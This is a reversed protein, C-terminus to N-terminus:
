LAEQVQCDQLFLYVLYAKPLGRQHKLWSQSKPLSNKSSGDIRKRKGKISFSNQLEGKTM